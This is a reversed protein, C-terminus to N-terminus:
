ELRGHGYESILIREERQYDTAATTGTMTLSWLGPALNLSFTYVPATQPQRNPQFTIQRDQQEFAPRGLAVTLDNIAIPHGQGNKLIFTLVGNRYTLQSSLGAAAQAKAKALRDNYHQSAVYTNEVVLGTWSGSALVAMTANVAIIVGFFAIMCLAMHKGTFQTPQSNPAADTM